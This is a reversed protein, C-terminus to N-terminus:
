SCVNLLYLREKVTKSGIMSVPDNHFYLVIKSRLEILKNVYLPRNHIEIIDPSNNQHLEFFKKVYDKSQSTLFKKKLNINIYNNSLKKKYDTSGYVTIDKKFKSLKITSNVFLSVAGPYEPSYNEKYPLLIAIKM